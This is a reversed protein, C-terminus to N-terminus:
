DGDTPPSETQAISKDQGGMSALWGPLADGWQHLALGSLILATGLLVYAQLSEQNFWFGLLLALVPTMLTILAMSATTLHKLAYFFLVFGLVSGFVGLYLIALSGRLPLEDPMGSDSLLWVLLFLPVALMLTGTTIALAPISAAVRKVLVISLSHLCTALLIGLIGKITNGSAGLESQFIVALGLLGILMGAFKTGTIRETLLVRALLSTIIPALGFLVAIMGSPIYQASWYVMSMAGFVGVCSVLYTLRAQRDWPLRVRLLAMLMLCVVLGLVMRSSVAFLAGTDQASWKIALPTTSWILIVGIYASPVSM